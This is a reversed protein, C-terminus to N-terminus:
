AGAQRLWRAVRLDYECIVGLESTLLGTWMGMGHVESTWASESPSALRGHAVALQTSSPHQTRSCM